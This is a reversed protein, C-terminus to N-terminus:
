IIQAYRRDMLGILLLTGSYMGGVLYFCCLSDRVVGPQHDNSFSTTEGVTEMIM